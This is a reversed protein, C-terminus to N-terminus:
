LGEALHGVDPSQAFTRYTWGHMQFICGSMLAYTPKISFFYKDADSFACGNFAPTEGEHPPLNLHNSQTLILFKIIPAIFEGCPKFVSLTEKVFM